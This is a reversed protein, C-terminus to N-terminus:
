YLGAADRPEGLQSGIGGEVLGELEGAQVAHVHRPLVRDARRIRVDDLGVAELPAGPDPLDGGVPADDRAGSGCEGLATESPPTDEDNPGLSEPHVAGLAIDLKVNCDVIHSFTRSGHACGPHHHRQPLARDWPPLSAPRPPSTRAVSSGGIRDYDCAACSAPSTGAKLSSASPGAHDYHDREDNQERESTNPRMQPHGAFVPAEAFPRSCARVSGVSAMCFTTPELGMM